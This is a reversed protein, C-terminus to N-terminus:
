RESKEGETRAREELIERKKEEYGRLGITEVVWWAIAKQAEM